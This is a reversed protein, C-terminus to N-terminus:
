FIDLFEAVDEPHREFLFRTASYHYRHNTGEYSVDLISSLSVRDTRTAGIAVPFNNELSLYIAIGETWFYGGGGNYRHDLYHVFEHRLTSFSESRGVVARGIGYEGSQGAYIGSSHSAGYGFIFNGVAFYNATNEFILVEIDHLNLVPRRDTDLVSHFLEEQYALTECM